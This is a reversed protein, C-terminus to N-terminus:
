PTAAVPTWPVPCVRVYPYYAGSASCWYWYGPAYAPAPTWYFQSVYTPYPYIPAAYFYWLGGASWWWGYRGDHWAHNWHGGRWLTREHYDFDAYRHHGFHYIHDRGAFGPHYPNGPYGHGHGAFGPHYPNGSYGHGHGAFGPHYPHGPYGHGRQGFQHQPGNFRHGQMGHPPGPARGHPPPPHGGGRQVGHGGGHDHHEDAHASLGGAAALVMALSLAFGLRTLARM